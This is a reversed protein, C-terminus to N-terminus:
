SCIHGYGGVEIENRQGHMDVPSTAAPGSYSPRRCPEWAAALMGRAPLVVLVLWRGHWAGAVMLFLEPRGARSGRLWQQGGALEVCKGRPGASGSRGNEGLNFGGASSRGVTQGKPAAARRREGWPGSGAPGAARGQSRRQREAWEDQSWLQWETSDRGQPQLRRLRGSARLAPAM